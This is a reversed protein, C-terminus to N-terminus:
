KYNYYNGSTGGASANPVTRGTEQQCVKDPLTNYKGAEVDIVRCTRGYYGFMDYIVLRPTSYLMCIIGQDPASWWSMSCAGGNFVGGHLDVDLDDFNSTYTGNVMYYRQQAEKAVRIIDKMTAYQSKLVALKYQPLAIAALIGIILVVVLLEILTFGKNITKIKQKSSNEKKM